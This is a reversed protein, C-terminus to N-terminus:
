QYTSLCLSALLRGSRDARHTGAPSRPQGDCVLDILERQLRQTHMVLRLHSQPTSVAPNAANRWYAAFNLVAQKERMTRRSDASNENKIGHGLSRSCLIDM